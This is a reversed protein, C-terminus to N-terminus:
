GRRTDRACQELRVLKALMTSSLYQVNSFDLLIKSYREDSILQDLEGGIQEVVANEFMLRDSVFDVVAVGDIDKVRIQQFEAPDM